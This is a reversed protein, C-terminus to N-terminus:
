LMFLSEVKNRFIRKLGHRLVAIIIKRESSEIGIFFVLTSNFIFSFFCMTIFGVFTVPFLKSIHYFSIIAIAAVFFNRFVVSVLFDWLNYYIQKHLLFLKAMLCLVATLISVGTALYPEIGMTLLLYVLPIDCCMIVSVVIQFIKIKGTAQMATNLTGDMSTVLSMLVAMVLFEAAYKPVNELWLNLIYNPRVLFPIFCILLLLFSYKAGARVLLMMSENDNAAYRKTIQPNMSQQFSSILTQIAASVQYAVGRAANVAPGCFLNIVLNVGQNRAVFGAGGLFAWSAFNFMEKYLSWDRYWHFTCEPFKRKAYIVYLIYNICAVALMMTGYVILKDYTFLKLIFVFCLQFLYDTISIYAYVDMKEHSIVSANYPVVIIRSLFILISFQYIVNAALLRESPLVVKHNVYWLGITELVFVVIIAITVHILVSTSFIKKQNELNKTGQAFSLYRQSAQVMASNLFALMSVIGGVVNYIGYDEVGLLTLVVRSTYLSVGMILLTRFFLYITNKAITKNSSKSM